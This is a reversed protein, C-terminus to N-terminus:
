AVEQVRRELRITYTASSPKRYKDVEIGACELAEVDISGLRLSVIQRAIYEDGGLSNDEGMMGSIQNKLVKEKETLEKIAERIDALQDVIHRNVPKLIDNM